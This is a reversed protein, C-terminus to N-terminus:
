VRRIPSKNGLVWIQSNNLRAEIRIPSEDREEQRDMLRHCCDFYVQPLYPKNKPASVIMCKSPAPTAKMGEKGKGQWNPTYVSQSSQSTQINRTQQQDLQKQM